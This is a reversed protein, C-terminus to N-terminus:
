GLHMVLNAQVLSLHMLPVLLCMMWHVPPVVLGFGEDLAAVKQTILSAYDALSEYDVPSNYGILDETMAIYGFVSIHVVDVIAQM